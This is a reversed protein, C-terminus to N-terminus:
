RKELNERRAGGNMGTGGNGGPPAGGSDRRAAKTAAVAEEPTVDDDGWDLEGHLRRFEKGARRRKRRARWKGYLKVPPRPKGDAPSRLSDAM